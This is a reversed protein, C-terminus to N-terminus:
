TLNTLQLFYNAKTELSYNGLSVFPLLIFCSKVCAVRVVFAVSLDLSLSERALLIPRKLLRITVLELPKNEM